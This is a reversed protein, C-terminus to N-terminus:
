DEVEVDDDANFTFAESPTGLNPTVWVKVSKVQTLDQGHFGVRDVVMMRFLPHNVLRDGRKLDRVKKTV